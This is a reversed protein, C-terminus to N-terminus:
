STQRRHNMALLWTHHLIAELRERGLLTLCAVQCHVATKGKFAFFWFVRATNSLSAPRSGTIRRSLRRLALLVAV